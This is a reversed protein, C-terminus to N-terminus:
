DSGAVSQHSTVALILSFTFSFFFFNKTVTNFLLWLGPLYKLLLILDICTKFQAKVYFRGSNITSFINEFRLNILNIEKTGM